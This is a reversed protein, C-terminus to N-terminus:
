NVNMDIWRDIWSEEKHIRNARVWTKDKVIWRKYRRRKM